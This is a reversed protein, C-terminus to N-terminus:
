YTRNRCHKRKHGLRGCSWCVLAESQRCQELLHGHEGCRYCRPQQTRTAWTQAPPNPHDNKLKTRHLMWLKGLMNEGNHSKGRGWFDHTTDEILDREESDLLTKRADSCVKLKARIINDMVDVKRHQWRANTVIRDGLRKAQLGTRSKRADEAISYQNHHLAKEYVYAAESTAFTTGNMRFDRIPYFNSLPHEHGRFNLPTQKKYRTNTFASTMDRKLTIYCGRILNDVGHKSLHLGDQVLNAANVTGNRLLFTDDMDIYTASGNECAKQLGENVKERKKNVDRDNRPLIGCITTKESRLSASVM